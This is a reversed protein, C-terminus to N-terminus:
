ADKERFTQVHQRLVKMRCENLLPKTVTFTGLEIFAGVNHAVKATFDPTACFLSFGYGKILDVAAKMNKADLTSIEDVIIPMELRTHRSAIRSLLISILFATAATTTGGSQGKTEIEDSGAKRFQYAVEDIIDKLNVRGLRKNFYKNSVETLASYFQEDMLKPQTIDYKDLMLTLSGFDARFTPKLKVEDLNSIRQKSLEHNIHDIERVVTQQADMIEAITLSLAQNHTLISNALQEKDHALSDFRRQYIRLNNEIVVLSPSQMHRMVGELVLRDLLKDEARILAQYNELAAKAQYPLNVTGLEHESMPERERGAIMSMDPALAQRAYSLDSEVRRLKDERPKLAGIRTLIHNKKSEYEAVNDQAADLRKQLEDIEAQHVAAQLKKEAVDVKNHEYRSVLELEQQAKKLNSAAERRKNEKVEANDKTHQNLEDLEARLDACRNELVEIQVRNEARAAQENYPKLTFSYGETQRMLLGNGQQSFLDCFATIIGEHSFEDGCRLWSFGPNLSELVTAASLPLKNLLAHEAHAEIKKRNELQQKKEALEKNARDMAEMTNRASEYNRLTEEREQIDAVLAEKIDDWTTESGYHSKVKLADEIQAQKTKIDKECQDLAGQRVKIQSSIGTSEEKLVKLASNTQEAENLIRERDEEFSRRLQNFSGEARVMALSYDTLMAEYNRLYKTAEEYAEEANELQQLENRQQALQARDEVVKILNTDLKERDRSRNMEVLSAIIEPMLSMSISSDFALQYINCFADITEEKADVLPLVCYRAAEATGNRSGYMMERLDTKDRVYTGGLEKNLEKAVASSLGEVLEGTEEDVFRGRITEYAVPLFVREYTYDRGRFCIMTFVGHPNQVELMLFSADSPFYYRYSDEYSFLGDKGKFRFTKDAGKFSTLPFLMIKTGALTGTKGKNNNGFIALSNNLPLEGYAYGASNICVMTMLLYSETVLQNIFDSTM